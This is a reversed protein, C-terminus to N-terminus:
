IGGGKALQARLREIEARQARFAEDLQLLVSEPVLYHTGEQEPPPQQASAPVVILVFVALLLRKM